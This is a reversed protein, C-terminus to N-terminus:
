AYLIFLCWDDTLNFNVNALIINHHRLLDYLVKVRTPESHQAVRPSLFLRNYAGYSARTLANGLRQVVYLLVHM